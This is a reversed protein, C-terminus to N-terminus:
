SLDILSHGQTAFLESVIQFLTRTTESLPIYIRSINTIDM